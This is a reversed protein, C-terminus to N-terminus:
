SFGGKRIGLKNGVMPFDCEPLIVAIQAAGGTAGTAVEEQRTLREVAIAVSQAGEIGTLHKGAHRRHRQRAVRDPM